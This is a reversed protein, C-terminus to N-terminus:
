VIFVASCMVCVFILVFFGEGVDECTYVLLSEESMRGVTNCYKAIVLFLTSFLLFTVSVNSSAM